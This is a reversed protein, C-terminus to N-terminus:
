IYLTDVWEELLNEGNGIAPGENYILSWKKIIEGSHASILYRFASNYAVADIHYVLRGINEKVYYLLDINKYIFNILQFDNKVIIKINDISLAPDSNEFEDRHFNATMSSPINNKNFHIKFNRGFVSRDNHIQKKYYHKINNTNDVELIFQNLDIGNPIDNDLSYFETSSIKKQFTDSFILSCLCIFIIKKM